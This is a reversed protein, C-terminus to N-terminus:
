NEEAHRRSNWKDSGLFYCTVVMTLVSGLPFFFAELEKM